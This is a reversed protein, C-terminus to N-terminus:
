LCHTEKFRGLKTENCMVYIRSHFSCRYLKKFKITAKMEPYLIVFSPYDLSACQVCENTLVYKYYILLGAKPVSSYPEVGCM